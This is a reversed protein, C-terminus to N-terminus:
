PILKIHYIDRIDHSAMDHLQMEYTYISPAQRVMKLYHHVHTKSSITIRQKERPM